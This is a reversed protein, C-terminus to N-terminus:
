KKSKRKKKLKQRTMTAKHRSNLEKQSIRNYKDTDSLQTHYNRIIFPEESKYTIM